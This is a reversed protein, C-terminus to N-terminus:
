TTGQKNCPPLHATILLWEIARRVDEDYETIIMIHTPGKMWICYWAHHEQMNNIRDGLSGTQGVYLIDYSSLIPNWRLFLYVAGWGDEFQTGLPYLSGSYTVGLATQVYVTKQTM